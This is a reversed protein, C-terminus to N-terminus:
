DKAAYLAELFMDLSDFICESATVTEDNDDDDDYDHGYESEQYGLLWVQAKGNVWKLFYIDNDYTEAFPLTNPGLDDSFTNIAWWINSPSKTKEDLSYFYSINWCGNTGCHDLEPTGGNYHNFIELLMPPLPHGFHNQVKEIESQSPPPQILTFKLQNVTFPQGKRSELAKARWRDWCGYDMPEKRLLWKKVEETFPAGNEITDFVLSDTALLLCDWGDDRTISSDAGNLLLLEVMELLGAEAAILLATCGNKGQFNVDAGATLAARATPVDNAATAALLEYNKLLQYIPSHILAIDSAIEQHHNKILPNAGQQLLYTALLEDDNDVALMLPTFGDKLQSNIDAGQTIYDKIKQLEPQEKGAEICLAHSIESLPQPM